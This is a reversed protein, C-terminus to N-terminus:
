LAIYRDRRHNIAIVLNLLLAGFASVLVAKWDLVLFALGFVCLDVIMQTWGARFGTSDQLWVALVGVGGLSAGHRFLALLGFGAAVGGLAAAVMPHTPGLTVYGPAFAILASLLAVAALTKLAFAAGMRGLALLYFPANLGLFTLGLDWGTAYSVLLAMGATQGTALGATQLFLMGLAAMLTGCAIAQADELPTHRPRDPDTEPM